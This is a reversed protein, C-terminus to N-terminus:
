IVNFLSSEAFFTSSCEECSVEVRVIAMNDVGRSKREGDLTYYYKGCVFVIRKVKQADAASIVSTDSLVPKFTTGSTMEQLSSVALPHRLLVKPGVVILPKRYNRVM